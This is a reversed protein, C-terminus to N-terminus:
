MMPDACRDFKSLARMLSLMMKGRDGKTSFDEKIFHLSIAKKNFFEILKIMEIDDRGLRDLKQLYISDGEKINKKLRQMGGRQQDNGLDNDIFIRSAPVGAHKLTSIQFNVSEQSSSVRVYGHKSM